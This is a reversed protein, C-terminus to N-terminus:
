RSFAPSPREKERALEYALEYNLSAPGSLFLRFHRV